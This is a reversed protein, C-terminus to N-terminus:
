PWLTRFEAKKLTYSNSDIKELESEHKWSVQVSTDCFRISYNYVDSGGHAEAYSYLIVATRGIEEPAIDIVGKKSDYIEHGVLVKVVDGRKFKQM